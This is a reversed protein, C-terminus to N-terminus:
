ADQRREATEIPSATYVSEADFLEAEPRLLVRLKRRARSIRSKVTGLPVHLISAVEEYSFGQVDRLVLAFRLDTPLAAVGRALAEKRISVETQEHPDDGSAQPLFSAETLLDLSVAPRVKRKRLLDLCANTAIRSIWTAFSAQGRYGNLARWIRLMADQACDLADERNGLMRLCLAYLKKEHPVMLAEFADADGKQAHRLLLADEQTTSM